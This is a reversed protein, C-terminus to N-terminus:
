SSRVIREVLPWSEELFLQHGGPLVMLTCNHSAGAASYIRKLQRFAQRVGAIPFIPDTEGTVIVLPRPAFLGLVDPMEAWEMLHPVYNCMCHKMGMISHEFTCFYSQPWAFAIRPLMAAAFLATTGGSSMGQMGIRSMDADGRWALYDIGRDVDFVREGVLTRGLMFGQLAATPCGKQGESPQLLETRQGFGRQEICLSAIGHKMLHLGQCADVPLDTWQSEDRSLNVCLHIGSCHGQVNIIFTYPPKVGKPLCVYAIADSGPECTFAVKEITGLEHEKTWLTIPRLPGRYDPMALLEAMKRRLKKQWANVDGGSYALQPKGAKMIRAHVLSPSLSLKSAISM